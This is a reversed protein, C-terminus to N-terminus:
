KTQTTSQVLVDNLPFDSQGFRVSTPVAGIADMVTLGQVVRGFVAYGPQADSGYNLAPNDVLNFYFQSTASNPDSTRAM